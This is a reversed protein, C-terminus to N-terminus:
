QKYEEAKTRCLIEVKNWKSNFERWNSIETRKVYWYVSMAKAREARALWLERQTQYLELEAKWRGLEASLYAEFIPLAKQKRYWLQQYPDVKKIEM